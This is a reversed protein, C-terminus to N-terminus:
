RPAVVEDRLVRALLRYVEPNGALGVHSGRVELNRANADRATAGPHRVIRDERTYIATMLVSEPIQGRSMMLPSGLAIVQRVLQPQRVAISRALTGGMSHGIITVRRGNRNYAQGAIDGLDRVLEESWGPNRDLGSRVPKYGIRSLWDRLPQLYTDGAFLGPLVIVPHGDGRPAGWGWFIPDALLRGFEAAPQWARLALEGALAADRRRGSPSRPAGSRRRNPQESRNM